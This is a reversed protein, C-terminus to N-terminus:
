GNLKEARRTLEEDPILGKLANLAEVRELENVPLARKFIMRVKETELEKEGRMSMFHAFLKLRQRLAERFWREKIATLQEMGLLKYRMAVGSVNGGFQEDSLDPVMSLKHIDAALSKKFVETDAENLQKCLWEARADADPLALVKDERLQQAPSRGNEDPEMSCGYLLLLADVFQQKDNMRSSQLRDYADILKLVGEFDGKEDEGNWYEVMPVGGFFHPRRKKLGGVEGLGAASYELVESDTYVEIKWGAEGGDDRLVPLLRVGLLPAHEVTDDYVVFARRPDLAAMRPRAGSDAFVLEVGRGLISAYRALEADVNDAACREYEKLVAELAAKQGDEAEYEVPCGTLYGAAMTAIYRPFGHVLRHNPMGSARRSDEIAHRGQYYDMLRERREAGMLFEQICARLAGASPLAGMKERDRVIL